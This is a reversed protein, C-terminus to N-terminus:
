ISWSVVDTGSRVQKSPDAFPIVQDSIWVIGPKAKNTRSVVRLKLHVARIPTTTTPLLFVRSNEVQEGPEIWEHDSFVELTAIRSPEVAGTVGPDPKYAFIRIATGRQIIPIKTLGVNKLKATISLCMIGNSPFISGLIMPELRPKFTRGRLYTLVTWGAGIILALGKMVLDIIEIRPDSM